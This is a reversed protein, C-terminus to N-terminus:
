VPKSGKPLTVKFVLVQTDLDFGSSDKYSQQGFNIYGNQTIFDNDSFSVLYYAKVDGKNDGDDAELLAFSEWKENLLNQDQAGGNRVGFRNLQSNVNYSLWPCYEAPTIESKLVGKRSAISDKFGDYKGVINTAKSIDIIDANRYISESKDQGHGAGGDRALVLFQDKSVYIMESQSAVRGTSLVPLQVAYEAELEATNNEIIRYTLFRSNRRKSNSSGGDQITASQLLTYLYKGDPSATLAELGQNNSRGTSPDEPKIKFDPDYIPPSAASFSETGKRLPVLADPTRIAQIMKGKKDFQYVRAAYEDSIWITDNDGLVLGETDLAVRAGGTGNKGGFGDGTYKALPLNPFGKYTVTDTPDLGTLPTGDPGTLLITDMYQLKFNPAAPRQVTANKVIEFTFSFKHVRSQTNQTGQTNWGRDPLGYIVGQYVGSSNTWRVSRKDLAIASGIGGLTDGYKDRFDAPLKGYGALEEYVYKKGNCTTVNVPTADARPTLPTALIQAVPLALLGLSATFLM